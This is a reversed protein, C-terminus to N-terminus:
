IYVNVADAAHSGEAAKRRQELQQSVSPAAANAPIMVLYGM